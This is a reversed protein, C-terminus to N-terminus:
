ATTHRRLSRTILLKLVQSFLPRALFTILGLRIRPLLAPAAAIRYTLASRRPGLEELSIREAIARMGPLPIEGIYFAIERGPEVRTVFENSLLARGLSLRRRSGRAHPAATEWTATVAPIWQFEEVEKWLKSIDVDFEARGELIIPATRYLDSTSDVIEPYYPM